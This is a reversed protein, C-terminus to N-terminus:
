SFIKMRMVWLRHSTIDTFQVSIIVLAAPKHHKIIFRLMIVEPHETSQTAGDSQEIRRMKRGLEQKKEDEKKKKPHLRAKNLLVSTVKRQHRFYSPRELMPPDLYLRPQTINRGRHSLFPALQLLLFLAPAYPHISLM